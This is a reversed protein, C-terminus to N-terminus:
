PKANTLIKSKPNTPALRKPLSSTEANLSEQGITIVFQRWYPPLVLSISECSLIILHELDKTNTAHTGGCLDM